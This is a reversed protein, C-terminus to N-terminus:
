ENKLDACLKLWLVGSMVLLWLITAVSVALEKGEVAMAMAMAVFPHYSWLFNELGGSPSAAAALFSPAFVLLFFLSGLTWGTAATTKRCRWSWFMGWLTYCIGTAVLLGFCVLAQLLSVGDNGSINNKWIPRVCPLLLPWFPLTFVAFGIIVAGLKATVIERPSLLSMRLPEWTKIERERTFANAGSVAATMAVVTLGVFNLIWWITEREGPLFLAGWLTRLYFYAVFLSLCVEFALVWFPPQRMRFKGRTERQLVPNLFSLTSFFPILWWEKSRASHMVSQATAAVVPTSGDAAPVELIKKSDIWYQEGFPRRLARTASLLLVGSLLLQFVISILWPSTEFVGLGSLAAGGSGMANSDVIGATAIIPNSWGFLTCALQWLWSMPAGMGTTISVGGFSMLSGGLWGIALVYASRMAINGKRSWASCTLGLVAGTFATTAHLAFAALFDEPSVGGMLFCTATIPLSVLLLLAIFSLASGLKGMVIQLSSLPSLQLGELLGAEREGAISTATIAPGILAWALSQMWILTLFLEHGLLEMRQLPNTQSTNGSAEAYRWFLALALVATYGFLFVFAGMGRWRARSERVVIPNWQM